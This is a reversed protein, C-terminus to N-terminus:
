AYVRRGAAQLTQRLSGYEGTPYLSMAAEYVDPPLQLSRLIETGSVADDDRQYGGDTPLSVTTNRQARRILRWVRRVPDDGELEALAVEQLVDDVDIVALRKCRRAAADIAPSM